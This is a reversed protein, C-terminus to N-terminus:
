CVILQLVLHTKLLIIPLVKCPSEVFQTSLIKLNSIPNQSKTTLTLHKLNVSESNELDYDIIVEAVAKKAEIPDKLTEGATGVTELHAAMAQLNM